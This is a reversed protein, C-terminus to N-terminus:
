WGYLGVIPLQLPRTIKTVWSNLCKVANVIQCCGRFFPLYGSYLSHVKMGNWTCQRLAAWGSLLSSAQLAQDLRASSHGNHLISYLTLSLLRCTHTRTTVYVLNKIVGIEHREMPQRGQLGM